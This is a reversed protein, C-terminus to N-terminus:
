SAHKIWLRLKNAFRNENAIKGFDDPDVCQELRYIGLIAHILWCQQILVM